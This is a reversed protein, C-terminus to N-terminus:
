LGIDWRTSSGAPQPPASTTCSGQSQAGPDQFMDSPPLGRCNEDGNTDASATKRKSSPSLYVWCCPTAKHEARVRDLSPCRAIPALLAFFLFSQQKPNKVKYLELANKLIDDLSSNSERATFMSDHNVPPNPCTAM